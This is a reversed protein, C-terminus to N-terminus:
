CKSPHKIGGQWVSKRLLSPVDSYRFMSIVRYAPHISLMSRIFIDHGHNRFQYSSFRAALCLFIDLVSSLMAHTRLSVLQHAVSLKLLHSHTKFAVATHTHTAPSRAVVSVRVSSTTTYGRTPSIQTTRFLHDPFRLYNFDFLCPFCASAM